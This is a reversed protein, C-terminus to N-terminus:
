YKAETTPILHKKKRIFQKNKHLLTLLNKCSPRAGIRDFFTYSYNTAVSFAEIIVDPTLCSRYTIHHKIANEYRKYNKYSGLYYLAYFCIKNKVSKKIMIELNM